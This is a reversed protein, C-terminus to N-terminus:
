FGVNTKANANVASLVTNSVAVNNAMYGGEIWNGTLPNGGGYSCGLVPSTTPASTGLSQSVASAADLVSSSSAGDLLASLVHWSGDAAAVNVQTGSGVTMNGATSSFGFGINGNYLDTMIQATTTDAGTREAVVYGGVPQGLTGTGNIFPIPNEYCVNSSGSFSLYPRSNTGAGSTVLTARDAITNQQFVGQNYNGGSFQPGPYIYIIKVNCITTSNNCTYGGGISFNTIQGTTSSSILDGCQVDVGGSSYCANVAPSGCAAGSYARLGWWAQWFQTVDGPGQYGGCGTGQTFAYANANYANIATQTDYTSTVVGEVWDTLSNSGDGGSGIVLGGEKAPTSCNAGSFTPTGLVGSVTADGFFVQTTTSNQQGAIIFMTNPYTQTTNGCMGNEIDSAPRLPGYLAHGAYNSYALEFMHGAGTDAVTAEVNGYFGCCSDSGDIDMLGLAYETTSATGTPINVTNPRNGYVGNGGINYMHFIPHGNQMIFQSYAPSVITLSNGPSSSCTSTSIQDCVTNLYIQGSAGFAPIGSANVYGQNAGSTYPYLTLTQTPTLSSGIQLICLPGTYTRSGARSCSHFAVVTSGNATLVDVPGVYTSAGSQGLLLPLNQARAQPSETFLLALVALASVWRM